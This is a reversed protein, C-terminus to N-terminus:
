RHTIVAATQAPMRCEGGGAAPHQILAIALGAGAITCAVVSAVNTFTKLM